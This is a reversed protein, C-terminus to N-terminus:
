VRAVMSTGRQQNIFLETSSKHAYPAGDTADRVSALERALASSRLAGSLSAIVERTCELGVGSRLQPATPFRLLRLAIAPTLQIRLVHAERRANAYPAFMDLGTATETFTQMHRAHLAGEQHLVAWSEADIHLTSGATAILFSRFFTMHSPSKAGIRAAARRAARRMAPMSLEYFDATVRVGPAQLLLAAPARPQLKYPAGELPVVYPDGVVMYPRAFLYCDPAAVVAPDGIANTISSGPPYTIGAGAPPGLAGHAGAPVQGSFQLHTSGSGADYQLAFPTSGILLQLEPSGAVYVSENFSATAIVTDFPHLVTEHGVAKVTVCELTAPDLDQLTFLFLASMPVESFTATGGSVSPTYVGLAGDYGIRLARLFAPLLPAVPVVDLTHPVDPVYRGDIGYGGGAIRVGLLGYSAVGLSALAATAAATEAPTPARSQTVSFFGNQNVPTNRAAVGALACPGVTQAWNSYAALECAFVSGTPTPISAYLTPSAGAELLALLKLASLSAVAPNPVAIEADIGNLAAVLAPKAAAPARAYMYRQVTPPRTSVVTTLGNTLAAATLTVTAALATYSVASVLDSTWVDTANSGNPDRYLRDGPRIWHSFYVTSDSAVPVSASLLLAISSAAANYGVADITRSYSSAGVCIVIVTGAVMNQAETPSVFLETNTAVNIAGTRVFWQPLAFSLQASGLNTATLRVDGSFASVEAYGYGAWAGGTPFSVTASGPTAGALAGVTLTTDRALVAGAESLLTMTSPLTNGRFSTPALRNVIALAGGSSFAATLAAAGSNGSNTVDVSRVVGANIVATAAAGTVGSFVVGPAAGYGTGGFPVTVSRVGEVAYAQMNVATIADAGGGVASVIGYHSSDASVGLATDPARSPVFAVTQEQSSYVADSFQVLTAQLSFANIAERSTDTPPGFSIAQVRARDYDGNNWRENVIYNQNPVTHYEYDGLDRTMFLQVYQARAKEAASLPLGALWGSVSAPPANGVPAVLNAFAWAGSGGGGSLTVIPPATYGAGVYDLTIGSVSGASLVATAQATCTSSITAGLVGFGNATVVVKSNRGGEITAKFLAVSSLAVSGAGNLLVRPTSRYNRGAFLIAVSTVSGGSVTCCATAPEDPDGGIFTLPYTGNTYSSGARAILLLSVISGTYVQAAAGTGTGGVITRPQECTLGSGSNTVNACLLMSPSVSTLTLTANLQTTLTPASITVTRNAVSAGTVTTGMAIGAGSISISAGMVALASVIGTLDVSVHLVTSNLTFCARLTNASVAGVTSNSPASITVTPASTYGSGGGGVAVSLLASGTPQQKQMWFIVPVREDPASVLDELQVTRYQSKLATYFGGYTQLRLGYATPAYLTTWGTGTAPASLVATLNGASASVTMTAGAQVYQGTVPLAVGPAFSLSGSTAGNYDLVVSTTGITVFGRAGLQDYRQTQAASALPVVAAPDVVDVNERNTFISYYPGWNDTAAGTGGNHMYITSGTTALPDLPVSITINISPAPSIGTVITGPRVYKGFLVSGSSLYNGGADIRLTTPSIVYGQIFKGRGYLFSCTAVVELDKVTHQKPDPSLAGVHVWDGGALRFVTADGSATAALSLTVLNGAVASVTTGAAVGTGSIADGVVLNSAGRLARASASGVALQLTIISHATLNVISNATAAQSVTINAGAISLVMTGLPLSAGYVADNIHFYQSMNADILTVVNSGLATVAIAANSPRADYMYTEFKGPNIALGGITQSVGTYAMAGHDGPSAAPGQLGLAFRGSPIVSFYPDSAM